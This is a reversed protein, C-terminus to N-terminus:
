IYVIRCGVTVTFHLVAIFSTNSLNLNTELHVTPYDQVENVGMDKRVPIIRKSNDKKQDCTANIRM